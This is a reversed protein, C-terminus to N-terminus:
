GGGGGGGTGGGTGTGGGGSGSTSAAAYQTDVTGSQNSLYSDGDAIANNLPSGVSYGQTFSATPQLSANEGCRVCSYTAYYSNEIFTKGTSQTFTSTGSRVPTFSTPCSQSGTVENAYGGRDPPANSFSGALECHNLPKCVGAELKGGSEICVRTEDLGANCSEIVGANALVKIPIRATPLDETVGNVEKKMQVKVIGLLEDRNGGPTVITMPAISNNKILEVSTVRIGPMPEAGQSIATMSGDIITSFSIQGGTNLNKGELAIKCTDGAKLNDSIMSQLVMADSAVAVKKQVTSMAAISGMFGGILIVGLSGALIAEILTFGNQNGLYKSTIIKM